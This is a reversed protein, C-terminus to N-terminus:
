PPPLRLRTRYFDSPQGIDRAFYLEDREWLVTPHFEDAATNVCAGLNKAPSWEGGRLRSVYLDGFGFGADPLADPLDLRAFLLTRGDPSIEPNYEWRADTNVGPGLPEPPAYTGDIRRKSRWIQVDETPVPAKVRAFYLTGFLDVSSYLEDYGDANVEAGLHEPVGWGHLTRRVRWLDMDGREGGGSVPRTSSFYLYRGDPSVFPDFDSHVGSFPAPVPQSWSGDRTRYATKIVATERTLPWWGVTSAWFARQRLPAFTLRWEWQGDLSILDPAFKEVQACGGNGGARASIPMLICLLPLACAALRLAAIQGLRNM